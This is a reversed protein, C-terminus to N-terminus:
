QDRQSWAHHATLPLMGHYLAQARPEQGAPVNSWADNASNVNQEKAKEVINARLRIARDAWTRLDEQPLRYPEIELPGHAETFDHPDFLPAWSDPDVAPLIAM